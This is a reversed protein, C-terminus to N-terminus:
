KDTFINKKVAKVAIDHRLYDPFANNIALDHGGAVFSNILYSLMDAAHPYNDDYINEKNFAPMLSAYERWGNGIAVCDLRITTNSDGALFDSITAPASLKDAVQAQMLKNDGLNYLGWYVEGMRADWAVLAQSAGYLKAARQALIQLTPVTITPINAAFAIGQAVAAATRVGIFSGSGTTFGLLNIEAIKLQAQQLVGEIMALLIEAHKRPAVVFDEHIVAVDKICDAQLYEKACINKAVAVSCAATATDIM